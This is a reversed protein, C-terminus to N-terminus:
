LRMSHWNGRIATRIRHCNACVVDCKAIEAQVREDSWGRAVMASPTIAKDEGPRHDLDMACVPFVGGCDM